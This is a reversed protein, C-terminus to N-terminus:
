KAGTGGLQEMLKQMKERQEPTMNKMQERMKAMGEEMQKAQEPSGFAGAMNGRTYGAPVALLNAPVSTKSASTLTMTFASASGEDSKWSVPVGDLGADRLASWLAVGRADPTLHVPIKGLASTVCVESSANEGARTVKARECAYGAVSSGGLKTVDYRENEGAKGRTDMVAYTKRADNLFYVHDPDDRKWLTAVKTGAPLGRQQPITFETRAGAAGLWVVVTSDAPAADGAERTRTLQYELRGQFQALAPVAHLSLAAALAAAAARSM